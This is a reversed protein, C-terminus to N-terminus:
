CDIDITANQPPGGGNFESMEGAWTAGTDTVDPPPPGGSDVWDVGDLTMRVLVTGDASTLSVMDTGNSFNVLIADGGPLSCGQESTLEYTSAGLTVVATAESGSEPGSGESDTGTSDASPDVTSAPSSDDDGCSTAFLGLVLLGALIASRRM